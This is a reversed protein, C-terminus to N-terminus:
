RLLIFKVLGPIFSLTAKPGGHTLRLCAYRYQSGLCLRAMLEVTSPGISENSHVSLTVPDV